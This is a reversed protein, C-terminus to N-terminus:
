STPHRTQNSICAERQKNSKHPFHSKLKFSVATELSKYHQTTPSDTYHLQWRTLAIRDIDQYTHALTYNPPLHDSPLQTYSARCPQRRNRQRSHRRPKPDVHLCHTGLIIYITWQGQPRQLWSQLQRRTSTTVDHAHELWVFVTRGRARNM